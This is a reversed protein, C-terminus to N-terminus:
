MNKIDNTAMSPQIVFDVDSLSLSSEIEHSSYVVLVIFTFLTPSFALM